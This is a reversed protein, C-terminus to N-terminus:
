LYCQYVCMCFAFKNPVTLTCEHRRGIGSQVVSPSNNDLFGAAAAAGSCDCVRKFLSITCLM